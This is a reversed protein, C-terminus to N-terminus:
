EENRLMGQREQRFQRLRERHRQLDKDTDDQENTAAPSMASVFNWNVGVFVNQWLTVSVPFFFSLLFESSMGFVVLAIGLSVFFSGLGKEAEFLEFTDLGTDFVFMVLTIGSLVKHDSVFTVGSTKAVVWTAQFLTPLLSIALALIFSSEGVSTHTETLKGWGRYSTRVDFFFFVVGAIALTTTLFTLLWIAWIQAKKAWVDIQETISAM